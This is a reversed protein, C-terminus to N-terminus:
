SWNSGFHLKAQERLETLFNIMRDIDCIHVYDSNNEDNFVSEEDEDDWEVINSTNLHICGDFKVMAKFGREKDVLTTSGEDKNRQILAM